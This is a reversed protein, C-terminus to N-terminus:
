CLYVLTQKLDHKCSVKEEREREGAQALHRKALQPQGVDMAHHGLAQAEGLWLTHTHTHTHPHTHM